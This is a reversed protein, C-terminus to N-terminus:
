SHKVQYRRQEGAGTSELVGEAVLRELVRAVAEVQARIQQRMLWWEAVGQTTDSANPCEALYALVAEELRQDDDASLETSARRRKLHSALV